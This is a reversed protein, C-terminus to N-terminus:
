FEGAFGQRGDYRTFYGGAKVADCLLSQLVYSLM